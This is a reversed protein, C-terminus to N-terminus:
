KQPCIIKVTSGDECEYYVICAVGNKDINRKGIESASFIGWHLKVESRGIWRRGLM